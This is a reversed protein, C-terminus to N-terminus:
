RWRNDRIRVVNDHYTISVLTNKRTTQVTIMLHVCIKQYGQIDEYCRNRDKLIEVIKLNQQTEGRLMM